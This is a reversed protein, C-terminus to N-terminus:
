KCYDKLDAVSEVVYKAEKKVEDPAHSMVFSNKFRKFMPIDNGSDGVVMTYDEDINLSKVVDQLIIGKDVGKKVFEVADKSWAIEFSDGVSEQYHKAALRAVEVGGKRFGYWPMIKYIHITEDNLIEEVKNLGRIYKENYVGQSKMAVLGILRFLPNLPSDDLVLNYKDTLILISRIKNDHRLLDYLKIADKHNIPNEIITQNGKSVFGGNCGIIMIDNSDLVKLIKSSVDKNRGTVLILKNGADIFDKLFKKNKSRILKLRRKPYFLTGDLDTALARIM